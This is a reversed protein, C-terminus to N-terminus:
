VILGPAIPARAASGFHRTRDNVYARGLEKGHGLLFGSVSETGLPAAHSVLLERELGRLEERALVTDRLLPSLACLGALALSGPVPLLPRRVGCARAIIRLYEVFPFAEPGAADVDLDRDAEAADAAIRGADALTVPQVRYAGGDPVPFFPFRRLFWALNSTLVDNPGVVLTPRVIAHPIGAARVIADVEAKGRYYGLESDLSANTVSVHVLRRVGAERVAEVLVRSNAVAEAFGVGRYPLRIWYTNVLTDAGRLARVLHEREFVLPSAAIGEAGPPPRRNTLTAVEFGRRQLERAVASGLYSFAGTVIARRPM